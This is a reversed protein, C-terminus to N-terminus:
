NRCILSFREKKTNNKINKRFKKSKNFKKNSKGGKHLGFIDSFLNNVRETISGDKIGNFATELNNVRTNLPNNFDVKDFIIMELTIITEKDLAEQEREDLKIIPINKIFNGKENYRFTYIAYKKDYADISYSMLLVRRNYDNRAIDVSLENRRIPEESGFITHYPLKKALENAYNKQNIGGKGVLCSHLLISCNPSLKPKLKSVFIDLNNYDLRDLSSLSISDQLGHAMIILHAINVNKPILELVKIIDNLSSVKKHVLEFEKLSKFITFLGRDGNANFAGADDWPSQLVLIIDKPKKSMYKESYICMNESKDFICNQDQKASKQCIGTSGDLSCKQINNDKKKTKQKKKKISKELFPINKTIYSM